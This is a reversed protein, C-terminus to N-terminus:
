TSFIIEAELDYKNVLIIKKFNLKLTFIVFAINQNNFINFIFKQKM